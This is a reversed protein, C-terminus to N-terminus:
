TRRDWQRGAGGGGGRSGPARQAAEAADLNPVRSRGTAPAICNARDLPRTPATKGRARTPTLTSAAMSGGSSLIRQADEGPSLHETAAEEMGHSARQTGTPHVTPIQRPTARRTPSPPKPPTVLRAPTKRRIRKRGKPSREARMKETNRNEKQGKRQKRRRKRKRRENM